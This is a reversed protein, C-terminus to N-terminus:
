GKPNLQILPLEVNMGSMQHTCDLAFIIRGDKIKSKCVAKGNSGDQELWLGPNLTPNDLDNNFEFGEDFYHATQCAPCHFLYKKKGLEENLCIIKTKNEKIKPLSVSIKLKLIILSLIKIHPHDNMVNVHLAFLTFFSEKDKTIRWLRSHSWSFGILFLRNFIKLSNLREKKKRPPDQMTPDFMAKDFM